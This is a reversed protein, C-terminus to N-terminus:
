SDYAVNPTAVSITVDNQESCMSYIRCPIMMISSSPQLYLPLVSAVVRRKNRIRTMDCSAFEEIAEVGQAETLQVM